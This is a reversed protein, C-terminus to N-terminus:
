CSNFKILWLFPHGPLVCFLLLLLATHVVLVYNYCVQGENNFGHKRALSEAEEAGGDIQVIWSNIYKGENALGTHFLFIVLIAVLM